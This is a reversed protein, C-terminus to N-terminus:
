KIGFTTRQPIFYPCGHVPDRYVSAEIEFIERLNEANVMEDPTGCAFVAGNRIAALYDSYRAALNIDHLVM